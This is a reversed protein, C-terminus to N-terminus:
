EVQFRLIEETQERLPCGLSVIGTAALPMSERRLFVERGGSLTIYSGNTSHDALIFKGRQYEFQAHRRSALSHRVVLDCGTDRGISLPMRASAFRWQERGLTLQLLNQREQEKTIGGGTLPDGMRTVDAEQEWLLEYIDVLEQRGKLRTRDFARVRPRMMPGMRAVTEATTLAQGARAADTIRAAINVADGFIDAAELLVEGWHFGIRINFGESGGRKLDHSADTMMRLAAQAAADASHFCALVADGLTKVVEGRQEHVARKLATLRRDVAEKAIQDGLREYAATSGVLDAFLVSRTEAYGM